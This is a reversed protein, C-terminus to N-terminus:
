PGVTLAVNWLIHDLLISVPGPNTTMNRTVVPEPSVYVILRTRNSYIEHSMTTLCFLQKGFKKADFRAKVMQRNHSCGHRLYSDWPWRCLRRAYLRQYVWCYLLVACCLVTAATYHSHALHPAVERRHGLSERPLRSGQELFLHGEVVIGLVCLFLIM